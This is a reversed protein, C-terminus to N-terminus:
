IRTPSFCDSIVTFFNDFKGVPEIVTKFDCERIINFIGEPISLFSITILIFRHIFDPLPYFTFFM